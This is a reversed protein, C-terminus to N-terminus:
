LSELYAGLAAREVETLEVDSHGDITDIVQDVRGDHFYPSRISVEVLSPVQFVGGTGVDVSENNTRHDGSHCDACGAAGEFLARGEAVRLEDLVEDSRVPTLGDLWEAVAQNDEDSPPAGGMREVFSGQMIAAIDELDGNWHFPATDLLGGRLSQTRRTLGAFDWTISDDGGEGHCSACAVMSPTGHHFLDRGTDYLRPRGTALVTPLPDEFNVLHLGGHLAWAVIRNGVFGVSTIAVAHSANDFEGEICPDDLNVSSIRRVGTTRVFDSAGTNAYILTGDHHVAVDTALVSSSLSPGVVLPQGAEIKTIAPEVIGGARCRRSGGYGTADVEIRAETSRQFLLWVGGHIDEVMRWATNAIGGHEDVPPRIREVLELTSANLVLVEATRFVSM